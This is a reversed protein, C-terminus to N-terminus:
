GGEYQMLKQEGALIYKKETAELELERRYETISKGTWVTFARLFSNLEAYGLLYAMDNTTM